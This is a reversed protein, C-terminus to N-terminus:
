PEDVIASLDTDYAAFLPQPNGDASQSVNVPYVVPWASHGNVEDYNIRGIINIKATTSRGASLIIATPLQGVTIM